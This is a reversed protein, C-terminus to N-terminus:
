LKKKEQPVYKAVRFEHKANNERYSLLRALAERRSWMPVQVRWQEREMGKRRGEIVWVCRASM